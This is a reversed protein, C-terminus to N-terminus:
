LPIAFMRKIIRKLNVILLIIGSAIIGAMVGVFWLSFRRKPQVQEPRTRIINKEITRVTPVRITEPKTKVLVKMTQLVTDYRYAFTINRRVITDSLAKITTDLRVPKTFILTDKQIITTHREREPLSRCSTLSLVLLLVTTFLRM